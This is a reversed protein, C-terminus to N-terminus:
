EIDLKAALRRLLNSMTELDRQDASAWPVYFYHNTLSEAEDRIQKGLETVALKESGEIWTRGRLEKIAEETQAQSWQRRELRERVENITTPDERWIATLVDWAHGGIDHHCWSALHADDRYSALDSLYQDLKATYADEPAGDLRRSYILSWKSISPGHIMCVQVLRGLAHALSRMEDVELVSIERMGEYAASMITRTASIGSDSLSYGGLASPALFGGEQLGNFRESFFDPSTYPSRVRMRDVSIPDPLFTYAATLPLWIPTKLGLAEAAKEMREFYYSPLERVIMHGLRWLEEKKMM